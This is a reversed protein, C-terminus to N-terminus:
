WWAVPGLASESMSAIISYPARRESAAATEREAPALPSLDHWHEQEIRCRVWENKDFYYEHGENNWVWCQESKNSPM